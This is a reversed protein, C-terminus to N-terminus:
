TLEKGTIIVEQFCIYNPIRITTETKFIGKHSGKLYLQIYPALTLSPLWHLAQTQLEVELRSIFLRTTPAM